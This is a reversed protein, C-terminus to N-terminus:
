GDSGVPYHHDDVWPPPPPWREGQAIVGDAALREYDEDDLERIEYPGVWMSRPYERNRLQNARYTAEFCARRGRPDSRRRIGWLVEDDLFARAASCRLEGSSDVAWFQGCDECCHDFRSAVCGVFTVWEPYWSPWPEFLGAM